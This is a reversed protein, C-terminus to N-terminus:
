YWDIRRKVERAQLMGGSPHLSVSFTVINGGYAAMDCDSAHFFVDKALERGFESTWQTWLPHQRIAELVRPKIEIWGRNLKKGFKHESEKIKGQFRFESMVEPQKDLSKATASGFCNESHMSRKEVSSKASYVSVSCKASDFSVKM